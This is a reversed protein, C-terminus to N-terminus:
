DWLEVGVRLGIGYASLPAALPVLYFGFGICVIAGLFYFLPPLVRWPLIDWIKDPMGFPPEIFTLCFGCLAGVLILISETWERPGRMYTNQILTRISFALLYSGRMENHPSGVWAPVRFVDESSAYFPGVIVITNSSIARKLLPVTEGPAVESKLIGEAALSRFARTSFSHFDIPRNRPEDWWDVPAVLGAALAPLTPRAGKADDYRLPVARVVGDADNEFFSPGNSMANTEFLRATPAVEWNGEMDRQLSQALIVRTKGSAERLASALENDSNTNVVDELFVDLVIESPGAQALKQLLKALLSRPYYPWAIDVSQMPEFLKKSEDTLQVIVVDSKSLKAPRLIRVIGIVTDWVKQDLFSADFLCELGLLVLVLPFWVRFRSREPWGM